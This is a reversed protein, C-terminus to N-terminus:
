IVGILAARAAQADLAIQEKLADLGDFKREARVFAHLAVEIRRGYLDGKFDFLHAELLPTPPGGVTPRVGLNAVGAFRDTDGVAVIIAYVGFRPRVYDALELNATPFGITRGRQAGPGVVGEIAFPRSLLRTATGVDGSQLADRIATSSVKNPGAGDAVDDVVCVEFGLRAGHAKLSQADGSRRRGFRFDAGIAVVRPAIHAHVIDSCFAADSLGALDRDFAIEYLVNVGLSDLARARQAPSQLRFPPADPQFLRRPHPEFVAAALMPAGRAIGAASAARLVAQHGLHVGDLNGLALAMGAGGDPKPEARTQGFRIHLRDM